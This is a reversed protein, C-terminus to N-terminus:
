AEVRKSSRRESGNEGSCVDDNSVVSIGRAVLHTSAASTLKRLSQASDRLEATGLKPTVHGCMEEPAFCRKRVVVFNFRSDMGRVGACFGIAACQIYAVM